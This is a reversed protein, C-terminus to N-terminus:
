RRCPASSTRRTASGSPSSPTRGTARRRRRRARRSTARRRRPSPRRRATPPRPHRPWRPARRGPWVHLDHHVTAGAEPQGRRTSRRSARHATALCAIAAADVCHAPGGHQGEGDAEAGAVGDEADRGQVAFRRRAFLTTGVLCTPLSTEDNERDFDRSLITASAPRQTSGKPTRGAAASLLPIAASFDGRQCAAAGERADITALADYALGYNPAYAILEEFAARAAALDECKLCAVGYNYYLSTPLDLGAAVAEALAARADAWRGAKCLLEGFLALSSRDEDGGARFAEVHALSDGYRGLKNLMVAANYRWADDADDAAGAAEFLGLAESFKSAEAAKVALALLQSAKLQRLIRTAAENTADAELAAELSAVAEDLRGLQELCLGANALLTSRARPAADQQKELAERLTALAEEPKGDKLLENATASSMASMASM